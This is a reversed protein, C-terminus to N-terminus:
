LMSKFKLIALRDQARLDPKISLHFHPLREKALQTFSTTQQPDLECFLMLSRPSFKGTTLKNIQKFLERYCSLGDPGAVLALRPERRISPSSAVQEPTLYPLNASIILDQDKLSKWFKAPLAKLLSGRYFDIKKTQQHLRANKKAVLYASRSIDTAIFKSTNYLNPKSRRLLNALSIIITGAGTGLDIIVRAQASSTIEQNVAEVLLETEPRPVLVKSNVFFKDTLFHKEGKLVALSWGALYKKELRYYRKLVSSPLQDEDHALISEVSRQSALALLSLVEPSPITRTSLLQRSTMSKPRLKENM